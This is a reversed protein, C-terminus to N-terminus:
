RGPVRETVAQGPNVGAWGKPQGMWHRSLYDSMAFGLLFILWLLGAVWFLKTLQGSYRLHMFYLVVLTAKLSAIGLAVVTNMFGLDLYAVQVTVATLVMLAAFILLYTKVSVTHESM